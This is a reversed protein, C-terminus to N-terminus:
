LCFLKPLLGKNGGELQRGRNVVEDPASELGRRTEETTKKVIEERVRGRRDDEVYSCTRCGKETDSTAFRFSVEKIIKM